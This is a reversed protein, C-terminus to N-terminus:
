EPEGEPTDFDIIFWAALESLNITDDETAVALLAAKRAQWPGANGNILDDLTKLFTLLEARSPM